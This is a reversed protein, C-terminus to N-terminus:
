NIAYPKDWKGIRINIYFDPVTGYDGDEVEVGNGSNIIDKIKTLAEAAEGTYTDKIYSHNVPSDTTGFDIPGGMISVTISSYHERVVSLKFGPLAKKLAQRKETVAEKAIYPM